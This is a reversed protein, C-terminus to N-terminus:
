PVLPERLRREWGRLPCERKRRGGQCLAQSLGQAKFVQQDAKPGIPLIRSLLLSAPLDNFQELDAESGAPDSSQQGNIGV